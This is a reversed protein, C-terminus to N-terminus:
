KKRFVMFVEVAFILLYLWVDNSLMLCCYCRFLIPSAGFFFVWMKEGDNELAYYNENSCVRIVKVRLRGKRNFSFSKLKELRVYVLVLAFTRRVFSYSTSNSRQHRMAYQEVHDIALEDAERKNHIHTTSHMEKVCDILFYKMHVCSVCSILITASLVSLNPTAVM